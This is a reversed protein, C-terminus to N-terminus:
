RQLQEHLTDWFMLEYAQLLRAARRARAPSDGDELGADAVSLAREEFGPGPVAFFRFFAVAEEALAYRSRLAEAMRGCCEGWAALNALFAVAVDARSGNMGLWSVFATYAQAGPEPEYTRLGGEDLGLQSAFTLLRALAEGEGEAMGLFFDGAPPEPFRAALHAFSRRDSSIITYQEGAFSALSSEPVEGAELAELYPHRRIAEELSALERRLSGVLDAARM